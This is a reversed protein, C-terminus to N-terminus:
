NGLRINGQTTPCYMLRGTYPMVDIICLLMRTHTPSFIHKHSSCIAAMSCSTRRSRSAMVISPVDVATLIWQLAANLPSHVCHAFCDTLLRCIKYTFVLINRAPAWGTWQWMDMESKDGHLCIGKNHPNECNQYITSTWSTKKCLLGTIYNPCFDFLEFNAHKKKPSHIKEM